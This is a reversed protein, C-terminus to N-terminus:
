TTPLWPSSKSRAPQRARWCFPWTKTRPSRAFRDALNRIEDTSSAKVEGVIALGKGDAIEFASSLLTDAVAGSDSSQRSSASKQLEKIQAQLAEIRSAVDNASVRLLGASQALVREQHQIHELAMPGTYATIRRVGASVSEERVIKVMGAQGTNSLHCGGCFERSFDGMSVVRVQDGYKEGFLAMAGMKKAEEIPKVQWDIASSGMIMRNVIQEVEALESSSVAQGHTFDFRLVDREVKSGAQNANHGIM